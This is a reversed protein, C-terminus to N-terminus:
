RLSIQWKSAGKFNMKTFYIIAFVHFFVGMFDTYLIKGTSLHIYNALGSIILISAIVRQSKRPYKITSIFLSFSHLSGLFIAALVDRIGLPEMSAYGLYLIVWWFFLYTAVLRISWLLLKQFRTNM